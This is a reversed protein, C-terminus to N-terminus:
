WTRARRPQSPHGAMWISGDDRPVPENTPGCPCDGGETDHDALDVSFGGRVLLGKIDALPLGDLSIWCSCVRDDPGGCIACPVALCHCCSSPQPNDTSHEFGCRLCENGM